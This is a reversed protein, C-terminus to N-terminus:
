RGGAVGWLWEWNNEEFYAMRFDRCMLAERIRDSDM